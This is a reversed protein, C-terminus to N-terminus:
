EGLVQSRAETCNWMRLWFCGVAFTRLWYSTRGRLLTRMRQSWQRLQTHFLWLSMDDHRLAVVLKPCHKEATNWGFVLQYIQRAASWANCCSWIDLLDQLHLRQRNEQLLCSIIKIPIDLFKNVALRHQSSLGWESAARCQARSNPPCFPFWSRLDRHWFRFPCSRHHNQWLSPKCCTRIGM